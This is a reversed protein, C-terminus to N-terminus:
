AAEALPRDLKSAVEELPQDASQLELRPVRGYFSAWATFTSPPGVLLDTEAFAYMDQVQHGPGFHVNLNGFDSHRLRANGCVLFAVKRGSLQAEISRMVDAYQEISFFYRGGKWTAYDGHRIHVGVVVDAQRRITRITADVSRRHEGVLQFHERVAEAHKNLLSESRFLWGSVLVPRGKRVREAFADSALDCAQGRGLRIVSFPFRTLRLHSLLRAGLYVASYTVRRQLPGPPRSGSVSSRPFRCWLDHQTSRFLHAYEAFAPNVLPVGYERAAALLHAQLLLRNGLQGYNRTIVIM